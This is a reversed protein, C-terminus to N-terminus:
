EPLESGTIRRYADRYRDTTADVVDEPLDPVPPRGNWRGAQKLSELYDRVPQKDLSEQGRGPEFSAAPWFRSSDPTLVEDILLLEGTDGVGFEFKTDAVIIGQGAALDRGFGYLALSIERLTDSTKGGLRRRLEGFTINEDHGEEAKTAPSFLPEPLKESERLGEPLKEGALTGSQRYEKWASGSLYGRVVCEVPFPSARRVLMGRGEWAARTESLEPRVALIKEPDGAVFHNQVIHRTREFWFSSLQTLVTGKWPILQPLVYDFASIRDSAVMLLHTDLDYMERVKGRRLLPYPLSTM